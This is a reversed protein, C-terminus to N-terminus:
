IGLGVTRRREIRSTTGRIFNTITISANPALRNLIIPSLGVTTGTAVVSLPALYYNGLNAMATLGAASVLGDTIFNDGLCGIRKTGRSHPNAVDGRFSLAMSVNQPLPLSYGANTGAATGSAVQSRIYRTPWIKQITLLGNTAVDVYCAAVLDSLEGLGDLTARLAAQFAARTPAAGSLSDVKWHFTILDHQGNFTFDYVVEFVDSLGIVDAM